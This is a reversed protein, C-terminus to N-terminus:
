IKFLHHILHIVPWFACFKSLKAIKAEYSDLVRLLLRIIIMDVTKYQHKLFIIILIHRHDAQAEAFPIQIKAQLFNSNSIFM